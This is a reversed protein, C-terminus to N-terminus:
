LLEGKSIKYGDADRMNIEMGASYQMNQLVWNKQMSAMHLHIKEVLKENLQPM